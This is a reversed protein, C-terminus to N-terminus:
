KLAMYIDLQSFAKDLEINEKPFFSIQYTRYYKSDYYSGEMYGKEQNRKRDLLTKLVPKFALGIEIKEKKGSPNHLCSFTAGLILDIM